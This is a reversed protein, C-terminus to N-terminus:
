GVQRVGTGDARCNSLHCQTHACDRAQSTRWAGSLRRLSFRIQFRDHRIREALEMDVAHARSVSPHRLDVAEAHKAFRLSRFDQRPNVPIVCVGRRPREVQYRREPALGNINSTGAAPSSGARGQPGLSKLDRADVM